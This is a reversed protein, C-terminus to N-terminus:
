RWIPPRGLINMYTLAAQLETPRMREVYENLHHAYLVSHTDEVVPTVRASYECPRLRFQVHTESGHM